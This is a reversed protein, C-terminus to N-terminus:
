LDDDRFLFGEILKLFYGRPTELFAAHDGGPIVTWQKDESALAVFLEAHVDAGALPDAAGQLLLVPQSVASGDLASWQELARWDMRVPDHHLAAAVFAEIATESITGPLIFDSAAAEATTPARAPQGAAPSVAYGPRLPYGFLVPGAIRAPFRQATLQAVTAGYSWGFLVVPLEPYRGALWDLVGSVDAAARDPTLWGSADRPTEGYGRLDLGYAAIGREVLGDMLSLDEGPVQLDFDPRTSWTRGHILLMVARPAAPTKAWVAFPHDDVTVTHRALAAGQAAPTIGPGLVLGLFLLVPMWCVAGQQARLASKWALWRHRESMPRLEPLCRRSSRLM